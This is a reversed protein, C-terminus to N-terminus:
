CLAEALKRAAERIKRSTYPAYGLLLAPGPRAGLIYQSLAPASVGAVAAKQSAQRDNVGRPLWALLHMGSDAPAVSLLGAFERAAASVLADQREAYLARM